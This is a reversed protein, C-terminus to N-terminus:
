RLPAPADAIAALAARVAEAPGGAAAFVADGLAVFECGTAAMAGVDDLTPVYAVCPTQFLEAWWAARELVAALPPAVGAEDPEGFMVYDAGAEAAEMADHRARAGGSGVIREHPKLADLAAKLTEPRSVHAGDAGARAVIDPADVLLMAAGAEQGQAVIPKVLKVLSREDLAPLQLLVADVCGGEYASRLSWALGDAWAAPQWAPDAGSVIRPTALVLRARDTM